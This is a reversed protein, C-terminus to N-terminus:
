RRIRKILKDVGDLISTIIAIVGIIIVLAIPMVFTFAGWWNFGEMIVERFYIWFLIEAKAQGSETM